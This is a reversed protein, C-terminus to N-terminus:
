QIYGLARLQEIQEPTMESKGESSFNASLTKAANFREELAAKLRTVDAPRSAALNNKEGPDANLDFLWPGGPVGVIIKLGSPDVLTRFDSWESYVNGSPAKGTGMLVPALSRGQWYQGKQVGALETLTPPVDINQTWEKVKGTKGGPVKILLPVHINEQYVHEHFVNMGHEFFAEGHDAMVVVITNADLGTTVLNQMFRGFQSDWYEIEADYLALMQKIDAESPMKGSKKYDNEIQMHAGSVPGNYAPDKYKSYFPEPAKYPSHPDMYHMYLFFPKGGTKTQDLWSIARDTLERASDGDAQNQKPNVVEFTDFGQSFGRSSDIVISKMIGATTYGAAQFQEAITQHDLSLNDMEVRETQKYRLVKHAQPDVGTFVSAVSPITWGAASITNDFAMSRSAFRTLNPTTTRQTYGFANLKDARLTDVLIVIVNKQTAAAEAHNQALGLSVFLLVAFFALTMYLTRTM